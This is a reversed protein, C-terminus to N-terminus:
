NKMKRRRSVGALGALGTGFLLMTAPEPVEGSPEQNVIEDVKIDVFAATFSAATLGGARLQNLDWAAGGSAWALEVYDEVTTDSNFENVATGGGEVKSFGGSGDALYSDKASDVGLASDGNGDFLDALVVANLLANRSTLEALVDSYDLNYGPSSSIDGDRNEDTILVINLAADSRISYNNLAYDIAQWGDEYGGSATFSPSMNSGIASATGWESGNFTHQHAEQYIPTGHGSTGFGVVGFRTSTVGAANLSSELNTAMGILWEQEGSMSGSEDMVFIVDAKTNLALANGAVSLFMAGAVVTSAIKFKKM